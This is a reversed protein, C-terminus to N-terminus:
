ILHFGCTCSHYNYFVHFIQIFTSCLHVKQIIIPLLRNKQIFIIGFYNCRISIVLSVFNEHGVENLFFTDFTFSSPVVNCHLFTFCYSTYILNFWVIVWPYSTWMIISHSFAQSILSYHMVSMMSFFTKINTAFHM